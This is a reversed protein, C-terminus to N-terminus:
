LYYASLQPWLLHKLVCIFHLNCDCYKLFFQAAFHAIKIMETSRTQYKSTELQLKPRKSMEINKLDKQCKQRMKRHEHVPSAGTWDSATLQAEYIKKTGTENYVPLREKASGAQFPNFTQDDKTTHLFSQKDLDLVQVFTSVGLPCKETSFNHQTQFLVFITVALFNFLRVLTQQWNGQSHSKTTFSTRSFLLM